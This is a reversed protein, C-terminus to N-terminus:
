KGKKIDTVSRARKGQEQELYDIYEMMDRLEKQKARLNTEKIDYPKLMSSMGLTPRLSANEEEQQTPQGFTKALARTPQGGLQELAYALKVPLGGLEKGGGPLSAGYLDNPIQYKKEQGDFRKLDNNFFLNRNSVLEIPLKLATTLSDLGLKGPNSIKTLDGVPLNAGFMKGTGDGNSTVPMFFNQKMYEPTDQEDLGMSDQLNTRLKDVRSYKAPDEAFKKLQFPINNRSWRYFPALRTFVEKETKTIRSYDFQTERVKAAAKKVAAIDDISKGEMAWRFLAFRNVQDAFNGLKQSNDFAKLPNLVSLAKKGGSRSMDKVANTIAKEPDGGHKAFEIASQSTSSLGQRRFQDYLPSEVGKALANKVDNMALTSYKLIDVPNMGALYNNFKAGIDNRIHYGPSFLAGRKWWSLGTDYAKLFKSLGEDSTLHQYRDLAERVGKTVLYKGGIEEVGDEGAKAFTYKNLDIVEAGDPIHDGDKFPRAFNSKSLVDKRFKVANAYDITQKQKIATAVFANDEFFKRGIRENVDEVSGLLERKKLLGKNPNNMGSPARDVNKGTKTKRFAKEEASLVHPMYGELEGLPIGNKVAWERLETDSKSLASAAQVVKPDTPINRVPRQFEKQIMVPNKASERLANISSEVGKIAALKNARAEKSAGKLEDLQSKLATRQDMLEIYRPNEAIDSFAKEAAKSSNVKPASRVIEKISSRITKLGTEIGAKTDSLHKLAGSREMEERALREVAIDDLKRPVGKLGSLANVLEDATRFGLERAVEDIGKGGERLFNHLSSPLNTKTVGKIGNPSAKRIAKVLAFSDEHNARIIQKYNKLLASENNGFNKLQSELRNAEKSAERINLRTEKSLDKGAQRELGSYLKRIEEDTKNLGDAFEGIAGQYERKTANVEKGLTKIDGRSISIADLLDQKNETRTVGDPFKYGKVDEFQRLPEERVRAVEGGSKIGGTEKATQTIDKLSNESMYKITNDTEDYLNKLADDTGGDLTREWGHQYKFMKGLGEKATEVLPHLLNDKLGKVGPVLDTAKGVLKSGFGVGKSIGKAIPAIPILNTPDAAVDWAFGAAAAGYKNDIGAYEKALESGTIRPAKGKFAEITQREIEKGPTQDLKGKFWTNLASLPRGIIEFTDFLGNQGQPLNTFKEFRNRKDPNVEGGADEIRMSANDISKQIKGTDFPDVPLETKKKSSSSSSSAGGYQSFGRGKSSTGSSKSNNNSFPM